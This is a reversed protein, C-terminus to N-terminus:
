NIEVSFQPIVTQNEKIDLFFPYNLQLSPEIHQEVLPKLADYLLQHGKQSLHLGDTLLTRWDSMNKMLGNFDIFQTQKQISINRAVAAYEVVLHDFHVSKGTPNYKEVLVKAWTPDDIKPPSVIIIKEKPVCKEILQDLINMMNEEFDSLDVHTPAGKEVSDNSGLL